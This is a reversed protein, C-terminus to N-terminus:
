DIIGLVGGAAIENITSEIRMQWATSAKEALVAHRQRPLPRLAARIGPSAEFQQQAPPIERVQNPRTSEECTVRYAIDPHVEVTFDFTSQRAVLIGRRDELAASERLRPWLSDM